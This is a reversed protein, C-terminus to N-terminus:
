GPNIYNQPLSETNFVKQNNQIYDISVVVMDMTVSSNNTVSVPFSSIGGFVGTSYRGTMLSIYNEPHSKIKQYLIETNSIANQKLSDELKLSSIINNQSALSDKKLDDNKPSKKGTATILKKSVLKAARLSDLLNTESGRSQRGTKAPDPSINKNIT